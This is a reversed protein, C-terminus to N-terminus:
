RYARPQLIQDIVRRGDRDTAMIRVGYPRGSFYVADFNVEKSFEPPLGRATWLSTREEGTFAIRRVVGPETFDWVVTQVTGNRLLTDVILTKPTNAYGAFEERYPQELGPPTQADLVDRRLRAVVSMLQPHKLFNTPLRKEWRRMEATLIFFIAIFAAFVALSVTVELLSYGRQRRRRM